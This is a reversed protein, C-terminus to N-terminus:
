SLLSKATSCLPRTCFSLQNLDQPLKVLWCRIFLQPLTGLIVLPELALPEHLLHHLVQFLNSHSLRLSYVVFM